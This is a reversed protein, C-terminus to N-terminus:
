GLGGKADLDITNKSDDLTKGNTQDKNKAYKSLLKRVVHPNGLRVALQFPTYKQNCRSNLDAGHMVLADLLRLCKRYNGLYEYADV